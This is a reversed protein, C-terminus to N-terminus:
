HRVKTRLRKRDEGTTGGYVGGPDTELSMAYLFCDERVSCGRCRQKAEVTWARDQRFNPRLDEIYAPNDIGRCAAKNVWKGLM